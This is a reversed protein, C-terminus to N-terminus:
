SSEVLSSEATVVADETDPSEPAVPDEETMPPTEKKPPKEGDPEPPPSDDTPTTVKVTVKASVVNSPTSDGGANTAVVRYRYTVDVALAADTYTTVDQGTTGIRTWDSAGHPSREIRYATEDAVDLWALDITTATALATLTTAAPPSISTTASVVDSPPAAGEETVATVRYYYTTEAELGVDTFTTVADVKAIVAWGSPDAGDGWREIKYGIAKPVAEWALEIQTSSRVQAAVRDIMTEADFTTSANTNTSPPPADTQPDLSGGAEPSGGEWAGSRDVHGSSGNESPWGWTVPFQLREGDDSSRIAPRDGLDPIAVSAWLAMGALALSITARGALRPMGPLRRVAVARHTGAVRQLDRVVVGRHAGGIRGAILAGSGASPMALSRELADVERTVRHCRYRDVLGLTILWGAILLNVVFIGGLFWAVASM